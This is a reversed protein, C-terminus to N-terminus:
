KGKQKKLFGTYFNWVRSIFEGQQEHDQSIPNRTHPWHEGPWFDQLYPLQCDLHFNHHPRHLRVWLCGVLHDRWSWSSTPLLGPPSIRQVLSLSAKVTVTMMHTINIYNLVQYNWSDWRTDVSVQGIMARTQEENAQHTPFYGFTWFDIEVKSWITKKKSMWMWWEIDKYIFGQLRSMQSAESNRSSKFDRGQRLWVVSLTFIMGVLLWM